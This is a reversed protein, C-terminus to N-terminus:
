SRPTDLPRHQLIGAERDVVAEFVDGFFSGLDPVDSVPTVDLAM